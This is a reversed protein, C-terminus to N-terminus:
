DHGARAKTAKEELFKDLQKQITRADNPGNYTGRWHRKVLDLMLAASLQSMANSHAEFIARMNPLIPHRKAGPRLQTRLTIAVQPVVPEIPSSGSGVAPQPDPPTRIAVELAGLGVADVFLLLMERPRRYASTPRQPDLTCDELLHEWNGAVWWTRPRATYERPDRRSTSIVLAQAEAAAIIRNIVAESRSRAGATRDEAKKRDEDEYRSLQAADEGDAPSWLKKKPELVRHGPDDSQWNAGFMAHGVREIAEGLFIHGTNGLPWEARGGPSWFRKRHLSNLGVRDVFVDSGVSAIRLRKEHPALPDIKCDYFVHEFGPNIFWKAPLRFLGDATPILVSRLPSDFPVPIRLEIDKTQAERTLADFVSHIRIWADRDAQGGQNSAIDRKSMFPRTM